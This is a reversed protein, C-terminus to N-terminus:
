LLPVDGLGIPLRGRSNIFAEGYGLTGNSGNRGWCRVVGSALVACTHFSGATIKTIHDGVPVAPLSAADTFDVNADPRYGLQGLSNSGWCRATGDDLLACTHSRGLAMQKIGAALTIGQSDPQERQILDGHGLQGGDNAGWCKIAQDQTVACTHAIGAAIYVAPGGLDVPNDPQPEYRRTTDGCGLQGLNNKGWCTVTGATSLACTHGGLALQQVPAGVAVLERPTDHDTGRGYGLQGDYHEGWCSVRGNEYLVCNHDTGAALQKVPEDFTWSRVPERHPLLDRAFGLAGHENIGWCYLVQGLLACTHTNGLAIHTVGSLELQGVSAPFEDEGINVNDGYGLQGGQNRGWCRMTGNSLAACTHEAGASLAGIPGDQGLLTQCDGAGLLACPHDLFVTLPNSWVRDREDRCDDYDRDGIHAASDNTQCLNGWAGSGQWCQGVPRAACIDVGKPGACIRKAAYAAGDGWGPSWCSYANQYVVIEQGAALGLQDLFADHEQMRRAAGGDSSQNCQILYVPRRNQPDDGFRYVVADDEVQVAIDANVADRGFLNGYFAGEAWHFFREEGVPYVANSPKRAPLAGDQRPPSAMVTFTSSEGCPFSLPLGPQGGACASAASALTKGSGYDCADSGDCVRLMMDNDCPSAPDLDVTSGPQCAGVHGPSWGCNRQAPNTLHPPSGSCEQISVPQDLVMGPTHATLGLGQEDQVGRLSLPARAGFANSRALICASVLEQCSQDAAIAGDAWAPCLGFGGTWTATDGTEADSWTIEIDSDVACEVIYSMLERAWPDRLQQHLCVGDGGPCSAPEFAATSLPNDLLAQNAEPNALLANFMLQKSGLRNLIPGEEGRKIASVHCPGPSADGTPGADSITPISGDPNQSDSDGGSCSSLLILLVLKSWYIAQQPGNALKTM